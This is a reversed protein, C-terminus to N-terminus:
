NEKVIDLIEDIYPNKDPDCDKYRLTLYREGDIKEFTVNASRLLALLNYYETKYDPYCPELEDQVTDDIVPSDDIVNYDDEELQPQFSEARRKAEENKDKYYKISKKVGNVKEQLKIDNLNLNNAM